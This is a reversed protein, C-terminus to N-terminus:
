QKKRVPFNCGGCGRVSPCAAEYNAAGPQITLKEQIDMEGCPQGGGTM